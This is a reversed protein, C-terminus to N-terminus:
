KQPVPFKQQMTALIQSWTLSTGSKAGAAIGTAYATAPSTGQVVWAAGGLYIVSAGPLALTIFSGYNSYSALQNGQTAAVAIVGSDAAPYTPTAVPQNGAAAFFVFGKAEAQQIVDSL